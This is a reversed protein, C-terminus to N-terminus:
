NGRILSPSSNGNEIQGGSGMEVKLIVSGTQTFKIANGLLNLLVQRLKSEDTQVYQPLDPSYEFVLQLNKSVARFRLMEELSTLLRILDFSNINLTTRGAEIKSMELIDNILNLLHEGARNIIALNEQHEASLSNDNSMVQTFGLIANLPTRLEHSM